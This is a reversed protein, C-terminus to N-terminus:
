NVSGFQHLFELRIRGEEDVYVVDDYEGLPHGTIEYSDQSTKGYATVFDPSSPMRTFVIDKLVYPGSDNSVKLSVIHAQLRILWDKAQIEEQATLHMLPKGSQASYLNASLEHYGLRTTKVYVPINLHEGSVQAAGVHTVEAISPVYSVPIGVEYVEGDISVRAVARLEDTGSNALADLENFSTQYTTDQQSSASADSSALTKGDALLLAKIEVWHEDDMGTLGVTVDISDGTFYQRKNTSLHIRPSNEDKIDLARETDFSRNPLYKQLSEQDPIPISYSPYKIQEAYSQAVQELRAKVEHNLYPNEQGSDPNLEKDNTNDLSNNQLTQSDALGEKSSAPISVVQQVDTSQPSAQRAGLKRETGVVPDSREAYSDLFYAIAGGIMILAVATSVVWASKGKKM